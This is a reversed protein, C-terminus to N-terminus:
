ALLPRSGRAAQRQRRQGAERASGPMAAIPQSLVRHYVTAIGGMLCSDVGHAAVVISAAEQSWFLARQRIVQRVV